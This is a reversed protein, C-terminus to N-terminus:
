KGDRPHFHKTRDKAASPKDPMAEPVNQPIGTKEQV